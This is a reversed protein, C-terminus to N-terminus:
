KPKGGGKVGGGGKSGRVCIDIYSLEATVMPNFKTETPPTVGPPSTETDPGNPFIVVPYYNPEATYFTLGVM